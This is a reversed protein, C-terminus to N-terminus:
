VVMAINKRLTLESIGCIKALERKKLRLKLIKAALWISVATKILHNSIQLKRALEIAKQTLEGECNLDGTIRIIYNEIDASALKFSFKHSMLKAAKFIDWKTISFQKILENIMIPIGERKSVLYIAAALLKIKSYSMTLKEEVCKKCLIIIEAEIYKPLHFKKLEAYFPLMKKEEATRLIGKLVFALKKENPNVYVKEANGYRAEIAPIRDQM